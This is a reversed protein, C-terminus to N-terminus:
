TADWRRGLLGPLRTAAHKIAVSRSGKERRAQAKNPCVPPTHRPAVHQHVVTSGHAVVTVQCLARKAFTRECCGGWLHFAIKICDPRAMEVDHPSSELPSQLSVFCFELFPHTHWATVCHLRRFFARVEPHRFRLTFHWIKLPLPNARAGVTWCGALREPREVLTLLFRRRRKTSGTAGHDRHPLSGRLHPGATAVESHKKKTEKHNNMPLYNPQRCTSQGHDSM